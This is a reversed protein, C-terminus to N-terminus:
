APSPQTASAISTIISEKTPGTTFDSHFREEVSSLRIVVTTKAPNTTPAYAQPMTDSTWPLLCEEKWEKNRDNELM